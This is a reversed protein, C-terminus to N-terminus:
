ALSAALKSEHYEYVQDLFAIVDDVRDLFNCQNLMLSFSHPIDERLNISLDFLPHSLREKQEPVVMDFGFYDFPRVMFGTHEIHSPTLKEFYGTEHKEKVLNVGRKTFYKRIDRLLECFEDKVEYFNYPADAIFRKMEDDYQIVYGDKDFRFVGIDAASEKVKLDKM